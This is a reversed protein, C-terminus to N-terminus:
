NPVSRPQSDAHTGVRAVACCSRACRPSGGRTPQRRAERGGAGQQAAPAAARVQRSEASTSHRHRGYVEDATEGQLEAAADNLFLEGADDADDM